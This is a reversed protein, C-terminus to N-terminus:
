VENGPRGQRIRRRRIKGLAQVEQETKRQAALMEEQREANGDLPVGNDEPPQFFGREDAELIAKWFIDALMAYGADYPHTGDPSIDEPLPRDALGQESHMEAMVVPRGERELASALKRIQINVDLICREADPVTNTMLTSMIVTARPSTDFLYNILDRMRKGLNPTDWHQLCDNSGVHLVFLNPKTQPVIHTSHEHVQDVRNGPYAELDNDPFDGLRQSGVFNVLNGRATMREHLPQRYGLNGTSVDGRTVSAGLFMVRLPIGDAIPTPAAPKLGPITLLHQWREDIEITSGLSVILGITFVALAILALIIRRSPAYAMRSQLFGATAGM